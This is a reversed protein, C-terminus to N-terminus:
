KNFLDYIYYVFSFIFYIKLKFLKFIASHLNKYHDYVFIKNIKNDKQRFFSTNVKDCLPCKAEQTISYETNKINDWFTTAIYNLM